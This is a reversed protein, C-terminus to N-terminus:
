EDYMLNDALAQAGGAFLNAKLMPDSTQKLEANFDKYLELSVLFDGFSNYLYSQDSTTTRYRSFRSQIDRIISEVQETRGTDNLNRIIASGVYIIEPHGDLLNYIQAASEMKGALALARGYIMQTYPDISDATVILSRSEEAENLYFAAEDLAGYQRMASAMYACAVFRSYPDSLTLCTKRAKDTQGSRHYGFALYFAAHPASHRNIIDAAAKLSIEFHPKQLVADYYVAYGRILAETRRNNLLEISSELQDYEGLAALISLHNLYTKISADNDPPPPLPPLVREGQEQEGLLVYTYALTLQAKRKLASDNLPAIQEEANELYLIALDKQAIQTATPPKRDEGAGVLALSPGDPSTCSALMLAGVYAPIYLAKIKM